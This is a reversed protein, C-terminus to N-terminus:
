RCELWTETTCRGQLCSLGSLCEPRSPGCAGGEDSKAACRGDPGCYSDFTCEQDACSEGVQRWAECRGEVCRGFCVREDNCAEGPEVFSQPVCIWNRCIGQGCEVGPPPGGGYSCAEGLVPMPACRLTDDESPACYTRDRCFEGRVCSEGLDATAPGPQCTFSGPANGACRLTGGCSAGIFPCPAGRALPPQCRSCAPSPLDPICALDEACESPGVCFEGARIEGIIMSQLCRNLPDEDRCDGRLDSLCTQLGGGAIHLRGAALRGGLIRGMGQAQDAVCGEVGGYSAHVALRECRALYECRAQIFSALQAVPDPPGGVDAPGADTPAQVQPDLPVVGTTCAGLISTVWVLSACRLRRMPEM